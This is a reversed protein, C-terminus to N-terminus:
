RESEPEGLKPVFEFGSSLSCDTEGGVSFGGESGESEEDEVEASGEDHDTGNMELSKNNPEAYGEFTYSSSKNNTPPPPQAPPQSSIAMATYAPTSSHRLLTSNSNGSRSKLEKLTQLQEIEDDKKAITDKLASVQYLYTFMFFHSYLSCIYNHLSKCNSRTNTGLPYPM